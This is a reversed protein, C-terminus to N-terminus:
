LFIHSVIGRAGKENSLYSYKLVKKLLYCALRKGQGVAGTEWQFGRVCFLGLADM